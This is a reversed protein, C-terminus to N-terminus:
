SGWCSRATGAADVAVGRKHGTGITIPTAARAAAPLALAVLLPAVAVRAHTRLNV